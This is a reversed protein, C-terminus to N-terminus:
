EVFGDVIKNAIKITEATMKRRENTNCLSREFRRLVELLAAIAGMLLLLLSVYAFILLEYIVWTSIM